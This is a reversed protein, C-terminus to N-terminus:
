VVVIGLPIFALEDYTEVICVRGFLLLLVSIINELVQVGKTDLRV